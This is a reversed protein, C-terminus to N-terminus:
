IMIKSKIKFSKQYSKVLLFLDPVVIRLLGKTKLVRRWEALVHPMTDRDIHELVHSSYIVNITKNKFPLRNKLNYVM